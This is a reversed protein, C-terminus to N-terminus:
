LSRRDEQDGGGRDKVRLKNAEPDWDVLGLEAFGELWDEMPWTGWKRRFTRANRVISDVHEIPPDSKPHFQHFSEAEAVWTLPVGAARAQFALDTDEGGYGELSADFGGLELFISARTAFSLSWFLEYRDEAQTGRGVPCTRQPHESSISRLDLDSTPLRARSPLYRVPGMVIGNSRELARGYAGVLSRSPICDVDLFVLKEYGAARAAANRAGGLSRCRDTAPVITAPFPLCQPVWPARGGMQTLVLEDPHRESRILAGILHDLHRQRGASTLTLVSIGDPRTM